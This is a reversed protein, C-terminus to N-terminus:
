EDLGACPSLYERDPSPTPLSYFNPSCHSFNATETQQVLNPSTLDFRNFPPGSFYLTFTRCEYEGSKACYEFMGLFVNDLVYKSGALM